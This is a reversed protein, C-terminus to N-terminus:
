GSKLLFMKTEIEFLRLFKKVSKIEDMICSKKNPTLYDSVLLGSLAVVYDKLLDLHVENIPHPEKCKTMWQEINAKM